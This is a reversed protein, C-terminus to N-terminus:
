AHLLSANNGHVFRVAGAAAAADDDFGYCRVACCLTSQRRLFLSQVVSVNNPTSSAWRLTDVENHTSFRVAFRVQGYLRRTHASHLTDTYEAICCVNFCHFPASSVSVFGLEGVVFDVRSWHIRVYRQLAAAVLTQERHTLVACEPAHEGNVGGVGVCIAYLSPCECM